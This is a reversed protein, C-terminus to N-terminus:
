CRRWSCWTAVHRRRTWALPRRRHRWAAHTSSTGGDASAPAAQAALPSFSLVAALAAITTRRRM